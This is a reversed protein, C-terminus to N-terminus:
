EGENEQVKKKFQYHKDLPPKDLYKKTDAKVLIGRLYSRLQIYLKILFARALEALSVNRLVGNRYWREFSILGFSTKLFYKISERFILADLNLNHGALRFRPDVIRTYASNNFIAYEEPKLPPKVYEKNIHTGLLPVTLSMAVHVPKAKKLFQETLKIDHETEGPLNFLINALTKIGHQRCLQFAKLNQAATLGKNVRKLAEDSGSEVGFSIHVCGARALVPALEETLLNARTQMAWPMALGSKTYERCFELARNEKILFCEDLILFSNIKYNEKLIRLEEIFVDLRKYRVSHNANACFTCRFPCGLSSFVLAGKTYYPRITDTWM